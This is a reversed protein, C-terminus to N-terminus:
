CRLAKVVVSSWAGRVGHMPDSILGLTNFVERFLLHKYIVVINIIRLINEPVLISKLASQKRGVLSTKGEKVWLKKSTLPLIAALVFRLASESIYKEKV